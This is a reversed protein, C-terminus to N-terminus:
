EAGEEGAILGLDELLRHGHRYRELEKRQKWLEHMTADKDIQRDELSLIAKAVYCGYQTYALEVLSKPSGLRAILTYRDDASCYCLAKEILYSSNKHTAFKMPDGNLALAIIEKHKDLGHELVSQIVHHAFSHCCLPGAEQLLEDVLESTRASSGCFELLRCLIRCAFRHKAVRVVHGQLDRAVFDSSAVSLQSVIKQVVYNGHPCMVAELIHGELEKAVEYADRQGAMELVQQVLRCGHADRSLSWVQGRLRRIIDRVDGSGNQLQERLQECHEPFITGPLALDAERQAREAARKRRLRRAASASLRSRQEETRDVEGEDSRDPPVETSRPTPFATGGCADAPVELRSTPETVVETDPPAPPEPTREPAKVAMMQLQQHQLEPSVQFQAAAPCAHSPQLSQMQQMAWPGPLAAKACAPQFVPHPALSHDQYFGAMQEQPQYVQQGWWGGQYEPMPAMGGADGQLGYNPMLRDAPVMIVVQQQQQQPQQQPHWGDQGPQQRQMWMQEQSMEPPPVM